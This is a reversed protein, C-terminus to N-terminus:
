GEILIQRGPVGCIHIIHYTWPDENWSKKMGQHLAKLTQRTGEDKVVTLTM